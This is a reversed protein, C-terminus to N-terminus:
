LSLFTGLLHKKSIVRANLAVKKLIGVMEPDDPTTRHPSEGAVAKLADGTASEALIFCTGGYWM